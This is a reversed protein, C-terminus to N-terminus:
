ERRRYVDFEKGKLLFTDVKQYGDLPHGLLKARNARTVVIRPAPDTLQFLGQEGIMQVGQLRKSLGRSWLHPTYYLAIERGPVQQKELARVLPAGSGFENVVPILFLNLYLVPFVLALGTVVTSRLLSKRASTLALLLAIGAVIATSLFLERVSELALMEANHKPQYFKAGFISLVVSLAFLVGIVFQNVRLAARDFGDGRSEQIFAGILLALPVMAPVMYVDLKGSILSFPLFVSLIWHFAFRRAPAQESGTRRLSALLVVVALLAWPFFTGPAHALYYWPPGKHAFSNVARGVNQKVLLEQAYENGGAQLAPILWLLPIAAVTVLAALYRGRPLAGGRIRELILVILPMVFAMPGKVLIAMGLWVACLLLDQSRQERLFRWLRQMGLTILFTFTLDMRATQALGWILYFTALIFAAIWGSGPFLEDGFRQLLIILAWYAILSPIVYPWISFVGFPFSLAYMMWFHLPPKHTYPQGNLTPLVLNGSARMERLVQSYKTEDGAMLDREWPSLLPTLAIFLVVLALAPRSSM